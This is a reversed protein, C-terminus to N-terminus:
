AAVAPRLECRQPPEILGLQMLRVQMAMSSVEFRRSLRRLDQVGENCYVQKVWARPMLLCAAFYDCVLEARDHKSQGRYEPYLFGVFPSDLVHKFEHAMSFRQRGWPEAGNVVILWRGRSWQAAGSVPSPTMREVQIRPLDSIATEPVPGGEIGLLALLRQAQLDAVRMSEAVTLSRLPVLDRLERIVNAM